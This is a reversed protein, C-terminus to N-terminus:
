FNIKDAGSYDTAVGIGATVAMALAGGVIVRSAGKWLPAGGFYSGIAGCLALLFLTVGVCVGILAWRNPIFICSLFPIAGFSLFMIFSAIGAQFPKAKTFDRIGLEERAHAKVADKTMLQNAVAKATEPECGREEYILALEELEGEWNNELEWQERKLDANELDRQSCVSVYEGVAMSCAGAILGALGAVLVAGQTSNQNAAVGIMISSVSVLADNAGLVGARLWGATGMQSRHGETGPEVVFSYYLKKFMSKEPEEDGAAPATEMQPVKNQQEEPPSQDVSSSSSSSSHSELDSM